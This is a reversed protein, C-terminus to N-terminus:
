SRGAKPLLMCFRRTIRRWRCALYQCGGDVVRLEHVGKGMAKHACRDGRADFGGASGRSGPLRRRPNLTSRGRRPRQVSSALTVSGRSTLARLPERPYRREPSSASISVNHIPRQTWARGPGRGPQLPDGDEQLLAFSLLSEYSWGDDGVLKAWLNCDVRGTTPGQAARSRWCLAPMANGDM